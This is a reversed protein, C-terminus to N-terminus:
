LGEIKNAQVIVAEAQAGPTNWSLALVWYNKFATCQDNPVEARPPQYGQAYNNAFVERVGVTGNWWGALFQRRQSQEFAAKQTAADENKVAHYEDWDWFYALLEGAPDNSAQGSGGRTQINLAISEVFPGWVLQYNELTVPYNTGALSCAEICDVQQPWQLALFGDEQVETKTERSLTLTRKNVIIHM